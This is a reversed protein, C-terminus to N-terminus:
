QPAALKPTDLSVIKPGTGQGGYLVFVAVAFVVAAGGLVVGLFGTGRRDNVM